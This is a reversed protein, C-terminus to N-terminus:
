KTIEMKDTPTMDYELPLSRGLFQCLKQYYPPNPLIRAMEQQVTYLENRPFEITAADYVNMPLIAKMGKQMFSWQLEFQASLMVNAAAAQVPMNVIEKMQERVEHRNGLFLRSQGALPLEFYGKECVFEFIEEQWKRLGVALAWWGDIDDQCRALSRVIRHKALLTSQYRGAGGLYITLFNLVKGIQRFKRADAEGFLKRSTGLHFDCDPKSYEEMMWADNSLLAAIRLEIQSYDFWILHSYRSSVCKKIVPPFTQCPPGKAVIRCQKTGGGTNDRTDSPVPYWRPYAIGKVLRTTPDTHGKGRGVLLPYLYRDLMGAVRHVSGIAKLKKASVSGAPLVNLLANRNEENFSIEKRAKTKELRPLIITNSSCELCADNMVKRKDTESGTGRLKLGWRNLISTELKTLRGSYTTLLKDLSEANMAIGSEEMWLTLWLLQSYWKRNFGSLKPSHKGYVTQIMSELKCNSALTAATDQCNYQHLSAEQPTRYQIFEGGYKTVRLLPALAKLSREPQGENYLYNTVILDVIPLPYNLWVKCEPYAHRLYLLDFRINQGILYEFETTPTTASTPQNVPRSGPSVRSRAYCNRIWSWLRRRHIENAMLFIGHEMEGDPNYWTIGVTVILDEKKVGDHLLSKIPHWMTQKHGKLIGYSEIDLSLHTVPYSPLRPARQIHLSGGTIEYVLDGNIYDTVMRMHAKVYPGHNADIKLASPHYTTFVPCPRPFPPLTPDSLYPGVIEGVRIIAKPTPATLARFDTTDGQRSFSKKLSMMLVSQTAPAGCCLIIVQDYFDQLYIIDALYFGQCAKMQTKNPKQHGSIACRVTNSLFVDVKERLRFFDIYVKKFLNGIKGIWAENTNWTGPSTGIVYLARSHEIDMMSSPWNLGRGYWTAPICTTKCGDHLPCATCGPDCAAIDLTTAIM